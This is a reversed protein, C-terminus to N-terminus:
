ENIKKIGSALKRRLPPQNQDYYFLPAVGLGGVLSFGGDSRSYM